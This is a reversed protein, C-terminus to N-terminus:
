GVATRCATVVFTRDCFSCTATELVQLERNYTGCVPCTWTYVSAVMDVGLCVLKEPAYCGMASAIEEITDKGRAKNPNLRATGDDGIDLYLLKHITGLIRVLEDKSPDRFEKM